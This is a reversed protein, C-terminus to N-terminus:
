RGHQWADVAYHLLTAGDTDAVFRPPELDLLYEVQQLTFINRGRTNGILWATPTMRDASTSVGYCIISLVICM